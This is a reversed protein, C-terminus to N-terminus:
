RQTCVYTKSCNSDTCTYGMNCGISPDNICDGTGNCCNACGDEIMQFANSRPLIALAALVLAIVQVAIILRSSM